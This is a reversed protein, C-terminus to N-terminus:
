VRPTYNVKESQRIHRMTMCTITNSIYDRAMPLVSTTTESPHFLLSRYFPLTPLPPVTGEISKRSSCSQHLCALTTIVCNWCHLKMETNILSLVGRQHRIFLNCIYFEVSSAQQHYIQMRGVEAGIGTKSTMPKNECM